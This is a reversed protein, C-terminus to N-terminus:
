LQLAAGIIRETLAPETNYQNLMEHSRLRKRLFKLIIVIRHILLTVPAIITIIPM